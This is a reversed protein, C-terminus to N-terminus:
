LGYRGKLANYNQLIESASLVRDYATINSIYGNLFEGTNWNQLTYRGIEMNNYTSSFDYTGSAASISSVEVGNIYNKAYTPSHVYTFMNWNYQSYSWSNFYEPYSNHYTEGGSLKLRWGDHDPGVYQLSSALMGGIFNKAFINITFNNLIWNRSTNYAYGGDYNFQFYGAPNYSPLDGTGYTPNGAFTFDNSNGSIDTWINSRSVTNTTSVPYYDSLFSGKELQRGWFYNYGVNSTSYRSIMDVLGSVNTSGTKFTIYIRYWGNLHKIVGSSIISGNSQTGITQTGVTENSLNFYIQYRKGGFDSEDLTIYTLNSSVPKIFISYTYTTSTNLAQSGQGYVYNSTSNGNNDIKTATLTGDPATTANLTVIPTASFLYGSGTLGISNTYRLLNESSNFSRKNAADLCLILNNRVIKPSHLLSM